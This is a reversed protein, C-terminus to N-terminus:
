DTRSTYYDKLVVRRSCNICPHMGTMQINTCGKCADPADMEYVFNWITKGSIDPHNDIFDEIDSDTCGDKIIETLQNKINDTLKNM